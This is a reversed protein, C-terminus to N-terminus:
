VCSAMHMQLFIEPLVQSTCLRGCKVSNHDKHSLANLQMPKVTTKIDGNFLNELCCEIMLTQTSDRHRLNM